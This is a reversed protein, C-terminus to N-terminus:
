VGNQVIFWLYLINHDFKNWQDHQPYIFLVDYELPFVVIKDGVKVDTLETYLKHTAGSVYLPQNGEVRKNAQEQSLVSLYWKVTKAIAAYTRVEQGHDNKSLTARQLDFILNFCDSFYKKLLSM